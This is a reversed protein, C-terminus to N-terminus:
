FDGFHNVCKLEALYISIPVVYQRGSTWATTMLMDIWLYQSTRIHLIGRVRVHVIIFVYYSRRHGAELSENLNELACQVGNRKMRFIKMEAESNDDELKPLEALEKNPICFKEIFFTALPCVGPTVSQKTM